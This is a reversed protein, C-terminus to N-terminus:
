RRIEPGTTQEYEGSALPGASREQQAARGLLSRIDGLDPVATRLVTDRYYELAIVIQLRQWAKRGKAKQRRLLAIVSSLFQMM